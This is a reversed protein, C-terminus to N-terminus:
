LITGEERVDDRRAVRDAVAHDFNFPRRHDVGLPLRVVEAPVIAASDEFTVRGTEALSLAILLGPRSRSTHNSCDRKRGVATRALGMVTSVLPGDNTGTGSARGDNVRKENVLADGSHRLIAAGHLRADLVRLRAIPHVDGAFAAEGGPGIGGPHSTSFGMFSIVRGKAPMSMPGTSTKTPRTTSLEHCAVPWTYWKTPWPYRRQNRPSTTISKELTRRNWAWIPSTRPAEAPRRNRRFDIWMAVRERYILM